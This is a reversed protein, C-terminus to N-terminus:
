TKISDYPPPCELNLDYQIKFFYFIFVENDRSSTDGWCTFDFEVIKKQTLQFNELTNDVGIFNHWLWCTCTYRVVSNCLVWMFFSQFFIWYLWYALPICTLSLGLHFFFLSSLTKFYCLQILYSIPTFLTTIHSSLAEM